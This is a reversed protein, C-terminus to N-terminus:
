RVYSPYSSTNSVSIDRSFKTPLIVTDTLAKSFLQARMTRPCSSSGELSEKSVFSGMLEQPHGRGRMWRNLRLQFLRGYMMAKKEDDPKYVCRFTIRNFVDSFSEIRHNWLTAM